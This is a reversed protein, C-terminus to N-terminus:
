SYATLHAFKFDQILDFSAIAIYNKNFSELQPIFNGFFHQKNMYINVSICSCTDSKSQAPLPLLFLFWYGAFHKQSDLLLNESYRQLFIDGVRSSCSHASINLHLLGTQPMYQKSLGKYVKM